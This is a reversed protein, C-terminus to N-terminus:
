PRRAKARPSSPRKRLLYGGVLACLAGGGAAAARAGSRGEAIAEQASRADVRVVVAGVVEGFSNMLPSARMGEGERRLYRSDKEMIGKFLEEPFREPSADEETTAVLSFGGVDFSAAFEMKRVDDTPAFVSFSAETAEAVRHIVPRLEVGVEFSGILREEEMVPLIGRLYFGFIGLEPGTFTKGQTLVAVLGTRFLLSDGFKKSNMRLFSTVNPLHFQMQGVGYSENAMKWLPDVLAALAGRDRSAFAQIVGPFARIRDALILSRRAEDRCVADFVEQDNEAVQRLEAEIHEERLALFNRGWAISIGMFALLIVGGVVRTRLSLGGKAM